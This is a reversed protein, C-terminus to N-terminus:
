KPDAAASERDAGAEVEQLIHGIPLDKSTQAALDQIGNDDGKKNNLKNKNLIV